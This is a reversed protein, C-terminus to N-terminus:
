NILSAIVDRKEEVVSFVDDTNRHIYEDAIEIDTEIEFLEDENDICINHLICCALIVLPIMDTNYMYVFRLKRFRAKFLGFTREIIIRTASLKKKYNKQVDSLHGNDKYPTLLYKSLPYASDGLLHTNQPFYMNVDEDILKKIDSLEWVRADHVSGCYGAFVNIFKMRHDCIGQLIMSYFGKRNVYSNPFDIPASIPIHSGDISGIVGPFSAVARFNSEGRLIQQEEPWKIYDGFRDAVSRYVEQNGFIWLSMAMQKDPCVQPCGARSVICPSFKQIINEFTSRSLLFHSKFDTLSYNLAVNPFFDKIKLHSEREYLALDENGEEDDDFMTNWLQLLNMNKLSISTIPVTRVRTGSTGSFVM